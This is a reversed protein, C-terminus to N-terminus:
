DDGDFMDELPSGELPEGCEACEYGLSETQYHGDIGMHDQVYEVVVPEDHTCFFTDGDLIWVCTPIERVSINM